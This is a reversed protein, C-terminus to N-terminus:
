VRRSWDNSDSLQKLNGNNGFRANYKENRLAKFNKNNKTEYESQCVSCKKNIRGNLTYFVAEQIRHKKCNIKM